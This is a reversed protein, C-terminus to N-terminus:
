IAKSWTEAGLDLNKVLFGNHWDGTSSANAASAHSAASVDSWIFEAATGDSTNAAASTFLEMIESQGSAQDTEDNIFCGPDTATGKTCAAADQALYFSVSDTQTSTPAVTAFASPTGRVVYTVTEGASVTDESSFTVVLDEDAETFGSTKVDNGDEDVITVSSTVDAGNKYFKLSTVTLTDDSRGDSWTTTLKFQKVALNGASHASVTFKYLDMAQGNVIASNTLDVASVTPISAFAYQANGNVSSFESGSTETTETGNTDTFKVSYLMNAVDTQSTGAGVGASNLLYKVTLIKSVNAKVPISLGTWTARTLSNEDYVTSSVLINGDYLRVANVLASATASAVSTTMEKILYDDNTASFRYKAAVVEQNAAVLAAVPQDDNFETFTGATITVTQGAQKSTSPSSGSKSGTGNVDFATQIVEGTSIATDIDAYVDFYITEGPKLEYNISWSNSTESIAGKTSTTIMNNAPGYKVYLNYMDGAAPESTDSTATDTGDFDVAFDTLNVSETTGATASFSGIKYATKPDITTQNAYSGNRAVSLAATRITLTNAPVATGDPADIYSGSTMRQVNNLNNMDVIRAIWTDSAEINNTGDADYIDGRVELVAPKGPEVIFSSGFTYATYATTSSTDNLTATSGVQVGNLFVAGNRSGVAESDSEVFAFRLSEVKMKEGFAKVNWKGLTVGSATNAVDGSPSDSAKTFTLSGSAITQAGADMASFTSAGVTPRVPQNYDSDYAIFDASNRLGVTVTRGSGGIVDALVKVQHTGTKLEIPSASFDFTIYGDVDEQAVASGRMVGGVYLQWNKIDVADISGINRFRVAKLWLENSGVSLSREFVRMGEQPDVDTAATPTTSGTFDATGFTSPSSAITHIAGEFPFAGSANGGNSFGVDSAAALKVGVTQGNTSAAIDSRISLTKAAGAALTWMGASNNFTVKGDSITASDTLRVNGDFLYLNALTTDSSVGLRKLTLKTLKVESGSNNTLTVHALDAVGQGAILTSASPSGAFSVSVDKSSVVEATTVKQAADTLYALKSSVADGATLGGLNVGSGSLVFGSKFMNATMGASDVKMKKGGWILYTDSGSKVLAGEYGNAASTLSDGVSYDVFFVDPVDDIYQNWNDGALGKAVAESEVWRISGNKAVAYVKNDSTIKVWHAGARYVINGALTISALESDSITTVGSFDNYWSFYTKENPFSYRQGDSGYYYVTSLTTGKILSGYSAASAQQPVLTAFGVSWLITAAAVAVTLTRKAISNTM